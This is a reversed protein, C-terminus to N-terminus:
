SDSAGEDGRWSVLGRDRVHPSAAMPLRSDVRKPYHVLSAELNQSPGHLQMPWPSDGQYQYEDSEVRVRVRARALVYWYRHHACMRTDEVLQQRPWRRVFLGTISRNSQTGRGSRFLLQASEKATPFSLGRASCEEMFRLLVRVKAAVVTAQATSELSFVRPSGDCPDFHQEPHSCQPPDQPRPLWTSIWLPHSRELGPM